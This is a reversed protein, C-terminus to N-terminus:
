GLVPTVTYGKAKLLALIGFDNLLHAAGVAFFTPRKKMIKPMLDVWNANRKKLLWDKATEDMYDEGSFLATLAEVDEAQYAIVLTDMVSDMKEDFLDNFMKDTDASNNLCELQFAITELGRIEVGKEAAMTMFEQEYSKVMECKMGSMMLLGSITTLSYQDLASLSMNLEAQLKEDLKKQQDPTLIESLKKEGLASAMMQELEKPDDMDLELFVQDCANFATKVKEKIEFDAACLLHMTGFIYSPQKLGNGSVSWLLSNDQANVEGIGFLVALLAGIIKIRKMSM